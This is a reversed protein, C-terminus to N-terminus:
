RATPRVADAPRLCRGGVGVRRPRQEQMEGAPEVDVERCEGGVPTGVSTTWPPARGAPARQGGRLSTLRGGDADSGRSGRRCRDRAASPSAAPARRRSRGTARSGAPTRVPRGRQVSGPHERLAFPLGLRVFASALWIVPRRRGDVFAVPISVLFILPLSIGRAQAHRRYSESVAPDVLDTADRAVLACHARDGVAGVTAAYFVTATTTDGTSAWSSPRTRCCRSWRSPSCTSSSCCSTPTRILRFM